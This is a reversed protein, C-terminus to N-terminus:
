QMTRTIYTTTGDLVGKNQVRSDRDDVRRTEDSSAAQQWYRAAHGPKSPGGPVEQLSVPQYPHTYRDTRMSRALLHNVAGDKLSVVTM